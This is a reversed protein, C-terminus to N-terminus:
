ITKSMHRHRTTTVYVSTAASVLFAATAATRIVKKAAKNPVCEAVFMGAMGISRIVSSPRTLKTHLLPQHEAHARVVASASYGKQALTLVKLWTPELTGSLLVASATAGLVTDGYKDLTSGVQSVTGQRRAIHGDAADTALLGVFLGATLSNQHRALALGVPVSGVIRAMSLANPISSHDIVNNYLQAAQEHITNTFASQNNM